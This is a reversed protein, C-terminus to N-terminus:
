RTQIRLTTKYWGEEIQKTFEHKGPYLLSLRKELNELGIGSGSKDSEQKEFNRNKSEFYVEDGVVKLRFYIPSNETASVGHKFANEILSIFLLPAILISYDAKELRSDIQVNESTRLRMLEIYRELFDIERNLEVEESNSEYLFYRMLKSLSHITEKAKEPSLDVLSYINNLSNFFFHPQLQYKLHTLESQLQSKIVENKEEEAKRWRKALKLAISFILPLILSLFNFYISLQKPPGMRRDKVRFESTVLLERIFDQRLWILVCFLIFNLLIFWIYKKNWLFKEILFLFNAYFVIAYFVLPIWNLRLIRYFNPTESAMALLYPLAFLASWVLIHILVPSIKNKSELM